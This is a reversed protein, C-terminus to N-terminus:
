YLSESWINQWGSNEKRRNEDHGDCRCVRASTAMIWCCKLKTFMCKPPPTNLVPCREHQKVAAQYNTWMFLIKIAPNFPFKREESQYKVASTLNLRTINLDECSTQLRSKLIFQTANVHVLLIGWPLMGRSDNLTKRTTVASTTFGHVFMKQLNKKHCKIQAVFNTCWMVPQPIKECSLYTIHFGSLVVPQKICRSSQQRTTSSYSNWITSSTRVNHMFKIRVTDACEHATHPHNGSVKGTTQWTRRAPPRVWWASLEVLM